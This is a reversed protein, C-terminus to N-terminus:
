ACVSVGSAMSAPSEKNVIVSNPELVEGVQCIGDDDLHMQKRYKPDNEHGPYKDATQPPCTQDWTGNTYKKINTNFKKIIYCRGFGRDLSGRNLIM